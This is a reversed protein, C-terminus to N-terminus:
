PSLAAISRATGRAVVGELVSKLQYFAVRDLSNIAVLQPKRQFIPSPAERTVSPKRGLFSNKGIDISHRSTATIQQVYRYKMQREGM